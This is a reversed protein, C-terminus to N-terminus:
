PGARVLAAFRPDSRVKRWWPHQATSRREQPNADLYTRLLRLSEDREGLLLHVYAEAYTMDLAVYSNAVTRHA